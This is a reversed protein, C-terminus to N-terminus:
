RTIKFINISEFDRTTLVFLFNREWPFNPACYTTSLFNFNKANITVENPDIGRGVEGRKAIIEKTM